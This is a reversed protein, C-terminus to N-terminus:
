KQPKGAATSRNTTPSTLSTPHSLWVFINRPRADYFIRRASLSNSACLPRSPVFNTLYQVNETRDHKANNCQLQCRRWVLRFASTEKMIGNLLRVLSPDLLRARGGGTPTPSLKKINM